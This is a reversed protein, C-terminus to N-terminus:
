SLFFGPLVLGKALCCLSSHAVANGKHSQVPIIPKKGSGSERCGSGASGQVLFSRGENKKCVKPLAM